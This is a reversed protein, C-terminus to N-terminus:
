IKPLPPVEKTDILAAVPIVVTARPVSKRREVTLCIFGCICLLLLVPLTLCIVIAWGGAPERSGTVNM